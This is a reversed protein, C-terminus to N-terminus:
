ATSSCRRRPRRDGDAPGSHGARQGRMSTGRDGQSRAAAVPPSTRAVRARGARPAAGPRRRWPGSRTSPPAPARDAARRGATSRPTPDALARDHLDVAVRELRHGPQERQDELPALLDGAQAAGGAAIREGTEDVAGAEELHEVAARRRRSGGRM